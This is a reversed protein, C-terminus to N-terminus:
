RDRPLLGRRLRVLGSSWLHCTQVPNSKSGTCIVDTLRWSCLSLTDSSHPSVGGGEEIDLLNTDFYAMRSNHNVRKAIMISTEVGGSRFVTTNWFSGWKHFEKAAHRFAAAAAYLPKFDVGADSRIQTDRPSPSTRVPVGKNKAYNSLNDAYNNVEEAYAEMDFPLIPRDALELTLLAWIQGLVRHYHFGPDGFKRMWDFNDYCSHYPYAEGEFGIDLSAMGAIDQFAVYDSGAGLGKLQSGSQQWISHLIRNSKPDSTRKLIRLLLRELAPSGAARFKDGSVAVDVNIYAVGHQRLTDLDNEVHETSGILNYEEGDWSAFEITRLPRWGQNRLLGFVRIVELLV